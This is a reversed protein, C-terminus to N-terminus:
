RRDLVIAGSYLDCRDLGLKESLVKEKGLEIRSILLIVSSYVRGLTCMCLVNLIIDYRNSTLNKIIREFKNALCTEELKECPNLSCM